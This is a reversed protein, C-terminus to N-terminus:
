GGSAAGRAGGSREHDDREAALASALQTFLDPLSASAEGGSANRMAEVAVEWRGDSCLGSLGADEYATLGADVVSRNAGEAAERKKM